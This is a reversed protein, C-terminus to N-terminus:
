EKRIRGLCMMYNSQSSLPDIVEDIALENFNAQAWGGPVYLTGSGIVPTVEAKIRIRGRPSEVVTWDGDSIGLRAADEPCVM